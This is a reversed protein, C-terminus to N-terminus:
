RDGPDFLSGDPRIVWSVSRGGGAWTSTWARHSTRLEVVLGVRPQSTVSCHADIVLTGMEASPCSAGGVARVTDGEACYSVDIAARGGLPGGLDIAGHFDGCRLTANGPGPRVSAHAHTPLFAVVVPFAVVASIVAAACRAPFPMRGRLQWAAHATAAVPLLVFAALWHPPLLALLFLVPFMAAVAISSVMGIRQKEARSLAPSRWLLLAGACWSAVPVILNGVGLLLLALFDLPGASSVPEMGFRNHAEGAIAAPEGIRSLLTLIDSDTETDLDSRADALHARIDDVIEARQARPLASLEADLRRMYEDIITNANPASM